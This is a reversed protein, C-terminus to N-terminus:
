FASTLNENSSFIVLTELNLLHLRQVCFKRLLINSGKHANLLIHLGRRLHKQHLLGNTIHNNM